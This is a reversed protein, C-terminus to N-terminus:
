DSASFYRVTTSNVYVFPHRGGDDNKNSRRYVAGCIARGLMFGDFRECLQGNRVFAKGNFFTGDSAYVVNGDSFEQIFQSRGRDDGNWTKGSILNEIEGDNLKRMSSTPQFAFPWAPMGAKEMDSLRRNLTEENAHHAYRVRYYNINLYPERELMVAVLEQAKMPQGAEVYAMALIERPADAIGRDPTNSVPQLVAIAEGPRGNLLLAFGFYTAHYPTSRPNIRTARRMAELAPVNRDAYISVIALVTYADANNPDLMTAKNALEIAEDHRGDVMRMLALVSYAESLNPDLSLAKSAAAEAARAATAGSMGDRLSSRRWIDAALQAYGAYAEAFKPDIEWASVYLQLSERMRAQDRSHYGERAKLYLDYAQLTPRYTATITTKESDTLTIALASVIHDILEDQVAFVDVIKRDYRESWVPRGSKGDILQANV